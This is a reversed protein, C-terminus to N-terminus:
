IYLYIYKVYMHVAAQVRHLSSTSSGALIRYETHHYEPMRARYCGEAVFHVVQNRYLTSSLSHDEQVFLGPRGKASYVANNILLVAAAVEYESFRDVAAGTSM